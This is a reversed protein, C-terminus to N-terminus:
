NNSRFLDVERHVQSGSNVKNSLLDNESASKRDVEKSKESFRERCDDGTMCKVDYSKLRMSGSLFVHVDASIRLLSYILCNSLYFSAPRNKWRRYSLTYRLQQISVFVFKRRTLVLFLKYFNGGSSM